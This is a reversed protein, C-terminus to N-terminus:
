PPLEAVIGLGLGVGPGAAQFVSVGAAAYSAPHIPARLDLAARLFLRPPAVPFELGARVGAAGYFISAPLVPASKVFLFRGVDTVGCGVFWGWSGCLLLAGSFRAFSVAGVSPYSASGLPPDGHLEAGVSVARYRVGAEASFGLSGWGTVVLEPWVSVGLRIAFPAREPKAPPEPKPKELPPPPWERPWLDFRSPSACAPCSLAPTSAPPASRRAYKEGLNIAILTFYTALNIALGELVEKCHLPTVGREVTRWSEPTGDPHEWVYSGALGTSTRSVEVRVRGVYVARPDPRFAEGARAEVMLQFVEETTIKASGGDFTCSAAAKPDVVFTLDAFVQVQPLPYIVRPDPPASQQASAERALLLAAIM